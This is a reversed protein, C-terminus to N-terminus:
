RRDSKNKDIMRLDSAYKGYLIDFEDIKKLYEKKLHVLGDILTRYEDKYRQLEGLSDALRQNERKLRRNERMLTETTEMYIKKRFLM